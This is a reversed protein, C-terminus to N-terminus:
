EREKPNLGNIFTMVEELRDNPIDSGNLGFEERIIQKVNMAAPFRYRRIFQTPKHTNDACLKLQNNVRVIFLDKDCNDDPVSTQAIKTELQQIQQQQEDIRAQLQAILEDKTEDFTQGTAQSYENIKDMIKGVVVAYQPSAWIAIYNILKPNVYTGRLQKLKDPIGKNLQYSWGGMEPITSYEQEFRELYALWAHNENIKAFKRGFQKCMSTANIFGDSDHIIVSIGNYTGRTFTEGNCEIISQEVNNSM